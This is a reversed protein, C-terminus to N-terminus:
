LRDPDATFARPLIKVAVDRGLKTDRARYVEGMGGAGIREQLHYVGLRRGTLVSAAPNSVLHAAVTVTPANLFGDAPAPQALLSEVEQRLGEDGVCAEALFTARQDAPRALAAHYMEELQRWREPTM